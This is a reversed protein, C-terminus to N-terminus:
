MKYVPRIGADGPFAKPGLALAASVYTDVDKTLGRVRADRLCEKAPESYYRPDFHALRMLGVVLTAARDRVRRADHTLQELMMAFVKESSVYRRLMHLVSLANATQNPTLTRARLRAVLADYLPRGIRLEEMWNVRRSTDLRRLIEEIANEETNM